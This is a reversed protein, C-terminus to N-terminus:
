WFWYRKKVGIYVGVMILLIIGSGVIVALKVKGGGLKNKAILYKGTTDINIVHVDKAKIMEYKKKSTNYLYTYKGDVKDEEFQVTIPGCLANNNNITFSTGDKDQTLEINTYLENDWNRIDGGNLKITYGNGYITINENNEYYYKLMESSIVSYDGANLENDYAVQDNGDVAEDKKEEEAVAEDVIVAIATSTDDNQVIITGNGCQNATILGSSSVSAVETDVSKYTIGQPADSPVVNAKIQHIQGPKLVLYSSDVKIETTAVKVTLKVKKTIKGASITITVNGKSIGKVEGSSNVTAIKEDSSEYKVKSDTADTPLVTATLTMTKDVELKDEHDAIEIDTVPIEDSKKEVINISFDKKVGGCAVTIVATGVSVGTIRGIENVSAVKEDSSKYTVKASIAEEPIVTVSMLQSSEVELEKPCDGLDIDRVTNGVDTVTLGFKETVSGCTVVIETVGAKLATIRGMGNIKAVSVDSSSFKLTQDTADMPLVTVSLLQKEGVTMQPQYDGLDLETVAVETGNNESAYVVNCFWVPISNLCLLSILIISIYRKIMRIKMFKKDWGQGDFFLYMNYGKDTNIENDFDKDDYECEVYIQYSTGFM